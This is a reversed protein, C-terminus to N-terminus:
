SLKLFDLTQNQLFFILMCSQPIDEAGVFIGFYFDSTSNISNILSAINKEM